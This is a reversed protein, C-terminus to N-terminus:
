SFLNPGPGVPVPAEKVAWHLGAFQITRGYRQTCHTAVSTPNAPVRVAGNAQPPTSGAPILQVCYITARNDIGGTAVDAAFMGNSDIPVTPQAFTPKTYWGSGEIQIFPAVKYASFDVGTVSGNIFGDVAYPPVSTIGITPAASACHPSGVITVSIAVALVRGEWPGM